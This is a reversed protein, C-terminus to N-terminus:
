SGHNDHRSRSGHDTVSRWGRPRFSALRPAPPAMVRRIAFSRALLQLVFPAALLIGVTLPSGIARLVIQAAPQRM